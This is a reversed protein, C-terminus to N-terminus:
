VAAWLGDRVDSTPLWHQEPDFPKFESKIYGALRPVAPHQGGKRWLMSHPYCPTPAVVPIRRIGAHWPVRLREGSFLYRDCSRAIEDLLYELGFDPGTADIDLQFEAALDDYFQAWESGPENGPMRASSSRLDLLRVQERGALPHQAGVLVHIPELFAPMHNIGSDLAGFVRAFAVDITGNIIASRSSRLGLSTVVEIDVDRNAEHFLRVLETAALRTALVDVRLPQTRGHIAGVAQDALAILARAHPLFVVGECTLESGRQSRHFLSVALTQELKAVRKSIAQQTVQLKAAADSFNQLEAVAVFARVTGLDLEM